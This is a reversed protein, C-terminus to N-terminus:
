IFWDCISFTTSKFLNLTRHKLTEPGVQYSLFLNSSEPVRMLLTIVFHDFPSLLLTGKRGTVVVYVEPVM